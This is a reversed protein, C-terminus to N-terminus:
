LGRSRLWGVLRQEYGAPDLNWAQTHGAGPVLALTVLDARAAALRKAPGDPVYDDADSHVILTPVNLDRSRDAWDLRGLDLGFRREAVWIALDTEATPLGRVFGQRRFVDRWDIVPSDLVLGRIRGAADSRDAVQLAVTGGMSWGGLVVDRAGHDLAWHVAADVDQWETGGLHDIRDPSAPAGVDNRYTPVLVPLGAAHLARLYRLSEARSGDHGHVFVFWTGDSRGAPVYWAPFDGLDAHVQVDDFGLGLASRPDGDYAYTDVRAATGAAPAGHRAAFARVVGAAERSRVVGIQGYGGQWELGFTGARAADPNTAPSLQVDGAGAPGAVLPREVVHTVAVAVGAFYWALAVGAVVVLLLVAAVGAALLRPWRRRRGMDLM